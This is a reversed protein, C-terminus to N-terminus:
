LFGLGKAGIGAAILGASIAWVQVKMRELEKEHDEVVSKEAKTDLVAAHRKLTPMVVQEITQQVSSVRGNAELLLRYIEASAVRVGNTADHESVAFCRATREHGPV